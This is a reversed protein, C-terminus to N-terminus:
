NLCMPTPYRERIETIKAKWEEESAEGRQMKFFLPDAEDAYAAKRNAKCDALDLSFAVQATLQGAAVQEARTMSELSLVGDEAEVVKQGNPLQDLGDRYRELKTKARITEGEVVEAKSVVALGDRIRDALPRLRWDSDFSRLDTGPVFYPWGDPVAVVKVGTPKKGCFAAVMKGDVVQIYESM